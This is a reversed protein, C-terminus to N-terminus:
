KGTVFKAVLELLHSSICKIQTCALSAYSIAHLRKSKFVNPKFCAYSEFEKDRHSLTDQHFWTKM